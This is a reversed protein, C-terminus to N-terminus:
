GEAKPRGGEVQSFVFERLVKNVEKFKELIVMHGAGPIVILQSSPINTQLYRSYDLPTMIDQDGVLILTPLKIEKIEELQNFRDCALFDGYTVMAPTQEMLQVAQEIIKSHTGKPYCRQCIWVLTEHLRTPLGELIKPNVKLNAGTATLILGQIKEPFRRGIEQTIAGGMSYGGIFFPGLQSGDLINHVWEAYASITEEGPGPTNGHGPLDLALVNMTRDLFRVQPSFIQSNSGAGHILILTPRGKQVGKAGIRFGVESPLGYREISSKSIKLKNCSKLFKDM